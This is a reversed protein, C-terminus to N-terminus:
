NLRSASTFEAVRAPNCTSIRTVDAFRVLPRAAVAVYRQQVVGRPLPCTHLARSRSSSLRFTARVHVDVGARTPGATLVIVDPPDDPLEVVVRLWEGDVISEVDHRWEDTLSDPPVYPGKTVKGGRLCRQM